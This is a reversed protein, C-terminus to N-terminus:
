LRFVPSLFVFLFLLCVMPKSPQVARCPTVKRHDSLTIDIDIHLERLTSSQGFKELLNFVDPHGCEM